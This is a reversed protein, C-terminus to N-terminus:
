DTSEKMQELVSPAPALGDDVVYRTLIARASLNVDLLGHKTGVVTYLAKGNASHSSSTLLMSADRQASCLM